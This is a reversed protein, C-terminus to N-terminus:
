IRLIAVCVPQLPGARSAAVQRPTPAPWAVDITRPPAATFGCIKASHGGETTSCDDLTGVTVVHEDHLGDGDNMAPDGQRPSRESPPRRDLVIAFRGDDIHLSVEYASLPAMWLAIAWAISSGLLSAIVSVALPRKSRQV